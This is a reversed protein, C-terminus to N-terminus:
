IQCANHTIVSEVFRYSSGNLKMSIEKGHFVNEIDKGKWYYFGQFIIHKVKDGLRPFVHLSPTDFSIFELWRQM